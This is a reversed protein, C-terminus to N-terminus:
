YIMTGYRIWLRFYSTLWPRQPSLPSRLGSILCASSSTLRERILQSPAPTRLGSEMGVTGGGEGERLRRLLAWITQTERRSLLNAQSCPPLLQGPLHRVLLLAHLFTTPSGKAVEKQSHSSTQSWERCAPFPPPTTLLPSAKFHWLQFAQLKAHPHPTSQALPIM